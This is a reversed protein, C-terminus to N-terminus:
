ASVKHAFVRLGYQRGGYREFHPGGGDPRAVEFLENTDVRAIRDGIRPESVEGTPQYETRRVIFSTERATITAEGVTVPSDVAGFIGQITEGSQGGRSITIDEGAQAIQDDLAAALASDFDSM